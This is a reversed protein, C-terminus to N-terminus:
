RNENWYLYDNNSPEAGFITTATTPGPLWTPWTFTFVSNGGAVSDPDTDLTVTQDGSGGSLTISGLLAPSVSTTIGNDVKTFTVPSCMDDTNTVLAGSANVYQAKVPLTLTTGLATAPELVDTTYGVGYRLNAGTINSITLGTATGGGGTNCIIHTPDPDFCVGDSDTLDAATFDLNVMASFASIPAVLRVYTVTDGTITLTPPTADFNDGSLTAAATSLSSNFGTSNVQDTYTRYTLNNGLKWFAGGYNQTFTGVTNQASVTLVPNTSFAINQDLYTYPNAGTTCSNNFVPTNGTVVLRAPIFRGIISSTGQILPTGTVGLYNDLTASITFAGVESISQSNITAVGKDTDIVNISNNGLVGTNGGTPAVLNHTLTISNAIFNPTITNDACAASVTLNFPEGAKKFVSCNANGGACDANTAGSSIIFQDPVAIFTDSGAMSLGEEVTGTAGTFSANLTMQGADPYAITFTSQGKANFNLVTSTVPATASTAVNNGNVAVARTGIDKPNDYTSWFRISKEGSFAPECTQTIDNQRVATITVTPSTSCSKLDPVDFTFGSAAFDLVCDNTNLTTNLCTYPETSPLTASALELTVPEATNHRLAGTGIGSGNNVTVTATDNGPNTNITSTFDGSSTNCNADMCARVTITEPACTLASGDHEIRYHHVQSSCTHSANMDAQIDTRTLAKEYIRVEDILGNFERGAFNQDGGIQLPGNFNRLAGTFSATALPAGNVYITQQGSRYTIAVHYWNGATINAGSTTLTRTNGNNDIWWWYIERSPNIHFEYNVDKSLISMLGSGPLVNPQIWVSVTLQNALDLLANDAIEVPGNTGDFNGGNCVKAPTSNLGNLATGNLGNGSSDVVEGVSGNWAMEDLAYYAVPGAPIHYYVTIPMHDVSVTRASFWGRQAAFAAGFGANNIEAPTWSTNWLDTASGYTITQDRNNNSYLNTGTARNVGTQIGAPDPKVLHVANDYFWGNSHGEMRLIVGDIVADPPINFNYGTCKLYNSISYNDGTAQAYQNDSAGVNTLGTADWAYTGITTDNVCLSPSGTVSGGGPVPACPDSGLVTFSHPCSGPADFYTGSLNYYTNGSPTLPTATGNYIVTNGTASANFTARGWGQVPQSMTLSSNTGQTWTVNSDGNGDLYSINAIGNNTLIGGQQIEVFSNPANLAGTGAITVLANNNNDLRLIRRDATHGTDTVTGAITFSAHRNNGVRIEGRGSFNMTSGASLTVNTADIYLRTNDFSGNGSITSGSGTMFVRDRNSTYTGNNVINGSVTLDRGSATLTIGANITLGAVRDDRNLTINHAIVATDSTNPVHGCSWVNNDNWNGTQQTTCVAAQAAFSVLFLTLVTATAAIGRWPLSLSRFARVM